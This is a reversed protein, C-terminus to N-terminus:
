LCPVDTAGIPAHNGFPCTGCKRNNVKSSNGRMQLTGEWVVAWRTTSGTLGCSEIVIPPVVIALSAGAANHEFPHIMAPEYNRRRRM